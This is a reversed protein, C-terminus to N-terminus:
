PPSSLPVLVLDDQGASGLAADATETRFGMAPISFFAWMKRPVFPTGEARGARADSWKKSGDQGAKEEAFRSSLCLRLPAFIPRVLIRGDEHDPSSEAFDVLRLNSCYLVASPTVAREFEGSERFLPIRKV